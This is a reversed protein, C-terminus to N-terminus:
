GKNIKGKSSESTKEDVKFVDFKLFIFYVEKEQSSKGRTLEEAKKL